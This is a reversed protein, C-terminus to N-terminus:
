GAPETSGTQRALTETLLNQRRLIWEVVERVAGHGGPTRTIWRAARRVEVAADAVAIPLGVRRMAALDALDDGIYCSQERTADAQEMVAGVVTGKDAVGQHVQTVGLESMRRSVIESERATVVAVPRGMSLWMKIATGDRVHFRKSERGTDDYVIRGDTLVGDVDLILLRISQMLESDSTM